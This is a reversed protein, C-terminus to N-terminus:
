VTAVASLNLTYSPTDGSSIQTLKDGPVILSTATRELETTWVTKGASDNLTATIKGDRPEYNNLNSAFNLKQDNGQRAFVTNAGTPFLLSPRGGDKVTVTIKNSAETHTKTDDSGNKAMLYIEATGINNAIIGVSPSSALTLNDEGVATTYLSIVNPNSCVWYFQDPDSFSIETNNSKANITATAVDDIFVINETGSPWTACSITYASSDATVIANQFLTTNYYNEGYVIKGDICIEVTHSTFSDVPDLKVKGELCLKGNYEGVTLPVPNNIDWDIVLGVTFDREGAETRNWESWLQKYAENDKLIVRVTTETFFAAGTEIYSISDEPRCSVLEGDALTASFEQYNGADHKFSNGRLDEAGSIGKVGKVYIATSDVENVEYYFTRWSAAVPNNRQETGIHAPNRSEASSITRVDTGDTVVLEYDGYVPESFKVYIPVLDGPYYTGSTSTISVVTPAKTDVLSMTGPLSVSKIEFDGDAWDKSLYWSKSDVIQNIQSVPIQIGTLVLKKTGDSMEVLSASGGASTLVDSEKYFLIDTNKKLEGKYTTEYEVSSFEVIAEEGDGTGLNHVIDFSNTWTVYGDAQISDMNIKYYDKSGITETTMNSGNNDIKYPPESYNHTPTLNGMRDLVYSMYGVGKIPPPEVAFLYSGSQKKAGDVVRCSFMIPEAGNLLDQRIERVLRLYKDRVVALDIEFVLTDRDKTFTFTSYTNLGPMLSDSNEPRLDAQDAEAGAGFIDAFLGAEVTITEDDGWLQYKGSTNWLSVELTLIDGNVSEEIDLNLGHRPSVYSMPTRTAGVNGSALTNLQEAIESIEREISLAQAIEAVTATKGTSVVTVVIDADSESLTNMWEELASLTDFGTGDDLRFANNEILAGDENILGLDLMEEYRAALEEERTDYAMIGTPLFSMLMCLAILASLIRKKM